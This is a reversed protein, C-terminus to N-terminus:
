GSSNEVSLEEHRHQQRQWMNAYVGGQNVLELHDGSEVVRGAELVFIRDVDVITSLRHAIILTTRGRSLETINEQIERETGTDLASTAEDFILIKPNKLIVRAIAVRQKEGGSLKLGREGVMTQYGDPLSKIFNDIHALQAASKVEEKTADPSGYAINYYITDNFLVTDQPVIGIIERLSNQSVARIDHGDVTIKGKDVDYFRFLLRSLTSKGSGSPGVVAIRQGMPMVINVGKLIQQRSDYAFSVNELKVTGNVVALEKADTRDGIDPTVSLLKFMEEIDIIAQKIERYVFGFLNLPQYLQMLYTNALVFDGVTMTGQVIGRASLVMVGTLGCSIIAAQGFNLAALSVNSKVAANEYGRLRQDYRRSEHREKSFYKVTEFNLLSDIARTNASTDAENMMRRFKIRWETVVMTYFVYITVTILTTLAIAVDLMYLLIGFVLALEFITPILNFLSIRLLLEIARIGREIIRSLGGTQRDLHFRLSLQHLHEFVQLAVMRVARQGVRAFVADRAESFGLSAVRALGYCLVAGIPIALLLNGEPLSLADVAQKYFIPVYVIAVKSFVLFVMACVVRLRLTWHDPSWLYPFLSILTQYGPRGKKIREVGM